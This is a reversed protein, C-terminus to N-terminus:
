AAGGGTTAAFERCHRESNPYRAPWGARAPVGAACQGIGSGDGVTDREFHRCGGCCAPGSAAERAERSGLPSHLPEPSAKPAAQYQHPETARALYWALAWPATHCANIVDSRIDSDTERIADLWASITAIEGPSPSRPSDPSTPSFVQNDRTETHAFPPSFPAFNAEQEPSDGLIDDILGDLLMLDGEM